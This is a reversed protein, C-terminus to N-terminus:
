SVGHCQCGPITSREGRAKWCGSESIAMSISKLKKCIEATTYRCGLGDQGNMTMNAETSPRIWRQGRTSEVPNSQKKECGLKDEHPKTHHTRTANNYQEKDRTHRTTGRNRTARRNWKSGVDGHAARDPSWQSVSGRNGQDDSPHCWVALRLVCHPDVSACPCCRPVCSECLCVRVPSLLECLVRDAIRRVSSELSRALLLLSSALPVTPSVPLSVSEICIVLGAGEGRGLGCARAALAILELAPPWRLLSRRWQRRVQLRM